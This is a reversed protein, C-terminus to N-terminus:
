NERTLGKGIEAKEMWIEGMLLEEVHRVRSM